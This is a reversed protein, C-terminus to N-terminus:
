DKHCKKREKGLERPSKRRVELFLQNSPHWHCPLVILHICPRYNMILQFLNQLLRWTLTSTKQSPWLNQFFDEVQNQYKSLLTLVLNSIQKFKTDKESYILKLESYSCKWLYNLGISLFDSSNTLFVFNFSFIFEDEFIM